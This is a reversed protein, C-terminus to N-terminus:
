TVSIRTTATSQISPGHAPIAATSQRTCRLARLASSLSICTTRPIATTRATRCDRMHMFITMASLSPVAVRRKLSKWLANRQRPYAELGVDGGAKFAPEHGFAFVLPTTATKRAALRAALFSQDARHCRTSEDAYDDLSLFMANRYLFSYSRGDASTSDVLVSRCGSFPRSQLPTIFMSKFDALDGADHNGAVTCVGISADYVPRMTSQWTAFASRSGHSVLDGPFLVFAPHEVVTQAALERLIVTDVGNDNNTGPNVGNGRSDGYVLFKWMAAQTPNSGFLLLTAAALVPMGACRMKGIM